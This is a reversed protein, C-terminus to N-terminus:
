CSFAVLDNMVKVPLQYRNKFFEALNFGNLMAMNVSFLTGNGDSRQLGPSSIGIGNVKQGSAKRILDVKDVVHGLYDELSPQVEKNIVRNLYAIHGNADVQAVKTNTGGIDIGIYYCNEAM